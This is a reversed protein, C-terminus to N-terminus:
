SLLVSIITRRELLDETSREVMRANILWISGITWCIILLISAGLLVPRKRRVCWKVVASDTITAVAYGNKHVHGCGSPAYYPTCCISSKM